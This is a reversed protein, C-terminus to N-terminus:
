TALEDLLAKAEKLDATDFGETFGNYVQALMTRSQRRQEKSILRALLTTARLEQAKDYQSRAIDIAQRICAEAEKAAGHMVLLEANLQYLWALRMGTEGEVENRLTERILRLGEATQGSMATALALLGQGFSENIKIKSKATGQRIRDIGEEISGRELLIWGQHMIAEGLLDSLGHKTCLAVSEEWLTGAAHKDGRAMLIRGGYCLVWALTFPQSIERALELAESTRKLALDPYGLKYAVVALTILATPGPDQVFGYLGARKRDYLEYCRELHDRARVYEGKQTLITGFAYHAWLLLFPDNSREALSLMRQTVETAIRLRGRNIYVSDLTGLVAFLEPSDQMEHCLELAQSCAQEVESDAYGKTAILPNMLAVWLRVEETRRESTAPLTRLLELGRRLQTIAEVNASRDIAKRGARRWYRVAQAILAAETYHHALLEPASMGIESPREELIQAIRQHLERRQSRLLTSYAADQVLAHKFIYTKERESRGIHLLDASVINDLALELERENINAVLRLLEYSFERGIVAGIQALERARGLRDLRAILSDHLTAPIDRATSHVGRELADRTLEEVFLPVGTARQVVTSAMAPSLRKESAVNNVIEHAERDSLRELTLHTYHPRSPWPSDLESRMTYIQMLTASASQEVLLKALEVTSADAWQLDELVLIAPQAQAIGIAWRSLSTLLQRRQEEPATPVPPYNKPVSVNLLPAILPLAQKAKLGAAQLSSALREILQEANETHRSAIGHRLMETVAHFPTSQAFQDGASEIWIHQDGAIREHFERILRSKGIGPEGVVMVVQGAGQRVREWRGLLLRLEVERGIFPILESGPSLRAHAGSPRLVQFLEIPQDIGKLSQAERAQVEFLGVVLRRMHGTILVTGPEAIAQLRAAINPVDGFVEVEKGVGAGVVVAGSHIGVRAALKAQVPKENLRSISELIALGARAAREADNEHAEPWGFYAMVGDGLYQAVYGGFRTIAEAAASHYSGVVERWEEPDLRTAIETSGVLDCFLVTLHRREGGAAATVPATGAAAAAPAADGLATGCEGCFSEDPQNTAGCKPCTVVLPAGCAACFKRGERNDSGCKSCRM